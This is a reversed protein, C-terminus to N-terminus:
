IILLKTLYNSNIFFIFSLSTTFYENLMKRNTQKPQTDKALREPLSDGHTGDLEHDTLQTKEWPKTSGKIPESARKAAQRAELWKFGSRRVLNGYCFMRSFGDVQVRVLM